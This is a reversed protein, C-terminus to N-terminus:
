SAGGASKVPPSGAGTAPAAPPKTAVVTPPPPPTPKLVQALVMWKDFIALLPAIAAPATNPTRAAMLCEAASDCASGFSTSGQGPTREPTDPAPHVSVGPAPPTDAV